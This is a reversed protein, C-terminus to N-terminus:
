KTAGGRKAFRHDHGLAADIRIARGNAADGSPTGCVIRLSVIPPSREFSATSGPPLRYADRLVAKGAHEERVLGGSRWAYRVTRDPQPFRFEWGPGKKGEGPIERGTAQGESQALSTAAHADARFDAELRALSQHVACHERSSQDLKFLSLLLGVATAMIVGSMGIVVILEVLTHGARKAM